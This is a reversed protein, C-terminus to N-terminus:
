AEKPPRGRRKPPEPTAEPDTEEGPMPVDLPHRKWGGELAEPVADEAFVRHEVNWGWVEPNPADAQRYLMVTM